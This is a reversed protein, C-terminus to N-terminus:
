RSTTSGGGVRFSSFFSRRRRTMERADRGARADFATACRILERLFIEKNSYFTQPPVFADLSARTLRDDLPSRRNSEDRFPFVRPSFALHNIRAHTEDRPRSTVRVNIILSLLQNIEAQFAFTETEESMTRTVARPSTVHHRHFSLRSPHIPPSPV